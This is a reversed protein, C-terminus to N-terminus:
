ENPCGYINKLTECLIPELSLEDVDSKEYKDSIAIIAGHRVEKKNFEPKGCCVDKIDINCESLIIAAAAIDWDQAGRRALAVDLVGTAVQVLRYALSPFAAGRVYKLGKEELIKHVVNPAPIVPLKSYQKQKILPKGNLFAGGGLSAEYLENRAPAYIVGAVAKGYEVIALSISWCDDGRMFARTGDIPDVVFVRENKLRKFDDSSEESLWGYDARAAMLNQFLVEDVKYDAESVPSSNAKTWSKIERRFYSSAVIGALVASSRLLELDSEYQDKLILNM